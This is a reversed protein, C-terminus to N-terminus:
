IPASEMSDTGSLVDGFRISHFDVRPTGPCSGVGLRLSWAPAQAPAPLPSESYPSVPDDLGM